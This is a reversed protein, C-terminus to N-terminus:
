FEIFKKLHVSHSFVHELSHNSVLADISSDQILTLDNFVTVRNLIAETQAIKNIEIGYKLDADLYSLM